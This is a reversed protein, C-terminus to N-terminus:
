PKKNEGIYQELKKRDPYDPKKKLFEEYEAAARDKYGAGNYLTALRLHAEAMGIPDLTLAANLYGVAKTGKKLQLYAEGLFYNTSASKPDINVAAELSEVAGEYNKRALRVRGLSLLAPLHSPKAAAASVFSNEAAELEKQIFYVMGLDSWAPFDKPDTAVLEHLTAIAEPYKKSSIERVSKQYLAKNNASREYSDAASIIGSGSATRNAISRWELNIDQRIDDAYQGTILLPMRALEVSDLEIALYYDGNFINIFRYRGNIAVRQRGFVENGRTYLIVDFTIPKRDERQSEDLKVDGWLTFNRQTGAGPRQALSPNAFALSGALALAILFSYRWVVRATFRTVPGQQQSHTQVFYLLHDQRSIM